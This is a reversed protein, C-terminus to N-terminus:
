NKNDGKYKAKKISAQLVARSKTVIKPPNFPKESSIKSTVFPKNPRVTTFSKQEAATQNKMSVFVSDKGKKIEKSIIRAEVFENLTLFDSPHEVWGNSIQSIHLFCRFGDVEIIAWQNHIEIVKGRVIQGVFLAKFKNKLYKENQEKLDKKEEVDREIQSFHHYSKSKKKYM